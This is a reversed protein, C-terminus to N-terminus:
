GCSLEAISFAPGGLMSSIDILADYAGAEPTGYWSPPTEVVHLLIVEPQFRAAMAKVFPAVATSQPAFDIPFLIRPFSTM